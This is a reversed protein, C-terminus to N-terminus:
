KYDYFGKGTKRGLWGAAVMKRLLVPAAFLPDKTEQFCAEAIDLIVDLGVFDSLTLMGMPMNLGHTIGLDIDEKTAAGAELMRIAGLQFPILQRNVIFGPIDPAVIVTKGLSEGFEKITELTEDGTAITKVLELLRMVPAPNFFHMGLVKDLKSTVAAIEIVSLCSTNSALITDKPCVKDLESFVKKKVDMIEIAAEIVLQCDSFDGLNTTGKVRGIVADKDEQSMKGKSVGRSLSSDIFGMGKKLLEENIESVVVQYGSRACVEAIGSGMAGCGVVGVKKIEM